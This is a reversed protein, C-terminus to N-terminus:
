RVSMVFFRQSVVTWTFKRTCVFIMENFWRAFLDVNVWHRARVCKNARSSTSHKRTTRARILMCVFKNAHSCTQKNISAYWKNHLEDSNSFFIRARSWISHKRPAKDSLRSFACVNFLVKQCTQRIFKIKLFFRMPDARSCTSMLEIDRVSLDSRTHVRQTHELRERAFWRARNAHTNSQVQEDIIIYVLSCVLYRIAHSRNARADQTNHLDNSNCFVNNQACVLRSSRIQNLCKDILCEIYVVANYVPNWQSIWIYVYIWGSTV